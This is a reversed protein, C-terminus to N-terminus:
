RLRGSQLELIQGLSGTKVRGSGIEFKDSVQDLCVNQGLKMIILSVIHGRSDVCPKELIQDQSWTKSGVQGMKLSTQSEILVFM